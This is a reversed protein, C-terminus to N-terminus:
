KKKERVATKQQAKKETRIKNAWKKASNGSLRMSGDSKFATM